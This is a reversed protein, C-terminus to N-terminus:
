LKVSTATAVQAELADCVANAVSQAGTGQEASNFAARCAEIHLNILASREGPRSASVLTCLSGCLRSISPYGYSGAVGRINHAATFLKRYTEPTVQEQADAWAARLKTLDARMWEDFQTSLSDIAAEAKEAICTPKEAKVDEPVTVPSATKIVRSIDPTNSQATAQTAKLKKSTSRGSFFKQLM